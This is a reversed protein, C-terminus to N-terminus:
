GCIKNGQQDFHNMKIPGSYSWRVRPTITRTCRQSATKHKKITSWRTLLCRSIVYLFLGSMSYLTPSRAIIIIIFLFLFLVCLKERGLQGRGYSQRTEKRNHFRRRKTGSAIHFPWERPSIRRRTCLSVAPGTHTHLTALAIDSSCHYLFNWLQSDVIECRLSSDNAPFGSTKPDFRFYGSCSSAQELM